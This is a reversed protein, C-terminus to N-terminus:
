RPTSMQSVRARLTCSMQLDLPHADPTRESIVDEPFKGMVIWREADSCTKASETEEKDTVEEEQSVRVAVRYTL